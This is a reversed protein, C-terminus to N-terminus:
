DTVARPLLLVPSPFLDVFAGGEETRYEATRFTEEDNYGDQEMFFRSIDMTRVVVEFPIEREAVINIIENEDTWQANWASYNKIEVLRNYLGRYNLRDILKPQSVRGGVNCITVPMLGSEPSAPPCEALPYGLQSEAFAPSQAMDTITFGNETIAVLLRPVPVQMEEMQEQPTVAQASRPSTVPLTAVIVFSATLLLLPIIIMIINMIPILFLDPNSDEYRGKRAM